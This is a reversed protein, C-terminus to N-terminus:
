KKEQPHRNIAIISGFHTIATPIDVGTKMQSLNGDLFLADTCGLSAFAEAFEYLNPRKPSDEDTILFVVEGSPTVGVGNRHLRSTSSASFAPHIKGRHLLLPGSQVAYFTQTGKIPFEETRVVAAGRSGVLFVGNPKLFFNGNGDSHNIPRLEKGDQILLGSPIGGPEFIGGNILTLPDEKRQKLYEAAVAFTRLQTGKDDKWLIRVANPTARLVHYVIGDIESKQPSALLQGCYITALLIVLSSRLIMNKISCTISGNGAIEPNTSITSSLSQCPL